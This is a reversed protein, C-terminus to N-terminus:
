CLGLLLLEVKWGLRAGVGLLGSLIICEVGGLIMKWLFLVTYVIRGWDGIDGRLDGM